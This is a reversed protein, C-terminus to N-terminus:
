AVDRESSSKVSRETYWPLLVKFCTGEGVKSEVLIRGGLDSVYQSSEYAGIGMGNSKTSQFPRFLRNRVFDASMGVGSDSVEVVAFDGERLTRIAVRQDPATADMANQVLHGIVRELRDEHGLTMVSAACDVSIGSRQTAAARGIRAVVQTLDVARAEEAPTTGSRLQLLLRNMRTVVHQVTMTMDQQFEPNDRHREANKLMLSLQAVLNKLDHVVFASMRNFAAFKEAELLAGTAQIQRLYSAVQRGATKLLDLVEWNLEVKTRARALVVFALLEDSTQLPVILWPSRSTELWPPLSLGQYKAPNAQHEELDIVWGTRELFRVLGSDVPEAAQVEAANWRGIQKFGEGPSRVWLAGGPSEVLDALAKVSRENVGLEQEGGSLLQTFRLWEERYDYRYSFFHKGILVRLRSRFTGSSFLFVLLLLAGFLLAAQLSKGWSGGFYRVYYGAGAVALLYASSGFVATSHFALGRSVVIEVTKGENRSASVALFPIVFAHVIGRASWLDLDLVGLLAADSYFFLDFAFMGGLGLCLPKIGWRSNSRTRRYLQELLALGLIAIALCVIAGTRLKPHAQEAGTYLVPLMLALAPLPLAIAIALRKRLGARIGKGAAPGEGVRLLSTIMLLWAALRFLDAGWAAHAWAISGSLVYLLTFACWLASLAAGSALLPSRNRKGAGLCLWAAFVSFAILALAYSWAVPTSFANYM